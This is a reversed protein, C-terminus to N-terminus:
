FNLLMMEKTIGVVMLESNQDEISTTKLFYDIIVMYVSFWNMGLIVDFEKM